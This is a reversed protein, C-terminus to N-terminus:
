IIYVHIEKILLQETYPKYLIKREQSLPLLEMLLQLTLTLSFQQTEYRREM